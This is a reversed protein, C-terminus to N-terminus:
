FNQPITNYDYNFDLFSFIINKFIVQFNQKINLLSITLLLTKKTINLYNIVHFKLYLRLILLKNTRVSNEKFLNKKNLFYSIIFIKIKCLNKLIKLM